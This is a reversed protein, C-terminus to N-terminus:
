AIAKYTRGNFGIDIYTNWKTSHIFGAVDGKKRRGGGIIWYIKGSEPDYSLAKRLEAVSPRKADVEERSLIPENM